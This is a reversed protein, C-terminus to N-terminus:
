NMNEEVSNAPVLASFTVFSFSHIWLSVFFTKVVLEQSINVTHTNLFKTSTQFADIVDRGNQFLEKGHIIEKNNKEEKKEWPFETIVPLTKKWVPPSRSINVYLITSLQNEPRAQVHLHHKYTYTHTYWSTCKHKGEGTYTRSQM